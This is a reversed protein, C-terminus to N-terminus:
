RVIRLSSIGFAGDQQDRAPFLEARMIEDLAELAKRAHFVVVSDRDTREVVKLTHYMPKLQEPMLELVKWGMLQLLYKLLFAAGRRVAVVSQQNHGDNTSLEMQLIGFVCTMVDVLFPQLSWELLVCVEALNSLCSARLTAEVLEGQGREEAEAERAAQAAAAATTEDDEESGIEQILQFRKKSAQEKVSQRPPPRICDLYAYVFVKAYKPLMEGCRKASFLLAESLKIRRELSQKRDRLASVLLPIAVDPHADSLTSLGQVAALFVYSESDELHKMFIRVLEQIRPTWVPDNRQQQSKRALKTLTVVGRARLPVLASSLDDQAEQLVENFSKGDQYGSNAPQDGSSRVLIKVRADSALEAIEPRSHQSLVELVPLLSRLQVEEADSRTSAGAELITMVVGLCITLIEDGEAEDDPDGARSINNISTTSSGIEEILGGGTQQQQLQQTEDVSDVISAKTENYTELVTTICSLIAGASRLVSPGLSEIIALLLSLIMEVGRGDAPFKAVEYLNLATSRQTSETAEQLESGPVQRRVQMYTLLLSAFLDGVVESSELEKSCLLETMAMILLKLSMTEDDEEEDGNDSETMRLAVGGSGGACFERLPKWKARLDRENGHALVLPPLPPTVPLVALQLIVAARQCMKIWAVLTVQLIQALVSKSSVAFSYMHLMPRIVPALAQLLHQSPPPGCLLLTALTVSELVEDENAVLSADRRTDEFLLLPQFLQGVFESEFVAPYQCAIKDAILVATECLLKSGRYTPSLLEKVQHSLARAYTSPEVGSPCQCILTAVQVRAQTNGEEVSGLLMEITTMVGGEEMLLQSLLQGCLQKFPKLTVASSSATTQGLAARLSTMSLRLPLARLVMQRLRRFESQTDAAFLPCTEGYVLLVVLEVVYKPLLIPQFQPLFLLQLMAQAISLLKRGEDSTVRVYQSGWQLVFKAIDLTRTPRRKDILLLIGAEVRPYASWSFLVELAAQLVSYDRLSLLGPPAEPRSTSKSKPNKAESENELQDIRLMCASLQQLVPVLGAEWVCERVAQQQQVQGASAESVSSCLAHVALTIDEEAQEEKKIERLADVFARLARILEEQRKVQTELETM